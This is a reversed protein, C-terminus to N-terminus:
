KTKKDRLMGGTFMDFMSSVIEGIGKLGQKTKDQVKETISNQKKDQKM